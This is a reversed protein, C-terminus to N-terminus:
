IHRFDAHQDLLWGTLSLRPRSAPLVEHEIQDSRFCVLRGASPLLDVTGNANYLRLQGGHAETWNENLYCIVSLKRHDDRHFQDLHRKYFAGEPYITMHVEYDSLSLFLAEKLAQSLTELRSLYVGVAKGASQRDIWQIYDGRVSENIQRSINKGTGAKRFNLFGTQFDPTAIIEAVEKATLFGDVYSYGDEALGDAIKAFIPDL